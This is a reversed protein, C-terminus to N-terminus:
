SVPSRELRKTPPRVSDGHEEHGPWDQGEAAWKLKLRRVPGITTTAVLASTTSAHTQVVSTTAVSTTSRTTPTFAPYPIAPHALISVDLTAPGYTIAKSGEPAKLTEAKQPLPRLERCEKIGSCALTCNPKPCQTALKCKWTCIPDECESQCQGPVKGCETRCIPPVCVTQCKGTPDGHLQGGPSCVVSCKPPGCRTECSDADTRECFTQCKPPMCYPTCTQDCETAAPCQWECRPHCGHGTPKPEKRHWDVYPPMEQIKQADETFFDESFWGPTLAEQDGGNTDLRDLQGDPMLPDRELSASGRHVLRAWCPVSATLMQVVAIAADGCLRMAPERFAPVCGAVFDRM